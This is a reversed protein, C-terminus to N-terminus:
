LRNNDASESSTISEQRDNQEIDEEDEHDEEFGDFHIEKVFGISELANQRLFGDKIYGPEMNEYIAESNDTNYGYIPDPIGYGGYAQIMNGQGSILAPTFNISDSSGSPSATYGDPFNAIQEIHPELLNYYKEQQNSFIRIKDFKNNVKTRRNEKKNYKMQLYSDLDGYYESYWGLVDTNNSFKWSLKVLDQTGEYNTKHQNGVTTGLFSTKFTAENTETPLEPFTNEKNNIKISLSIADGARLGSTSPPDIDRNFNDIIFDGKNFIFKDRPLIGFINTDDGSEINIGFFGRKRRSLSLKHVVTIEQPQILVPCSMIPLTALNNFDFHQPNYYYSQYNITDINRMSADINLAENLYTIHDENAENETLGTKGKYDSTHDLNINKSNAYEINEINNNALGDIMVDTTLIGNSSSLEVWASTNSWKERLSSIRQNGHMDELLTGFKQEEQLVDETSEETEEPKGLISNKISKRSSYFNFIDLNFVYKEIIDSVIPSLLSMKDISFMSSM